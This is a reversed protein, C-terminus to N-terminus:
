KFKHNIKSRHNPKSQRKIKSKLNRKKHQTNEISKRISSKITDYEDYKDFLSDHYALTLNKNRKYKYFPHNDLIFQIQDAYNLENIGVAVKSDMKYLHTGFLRNSQHVAGIIIFKIDNQILHSKDRSTIIDKIKRTDGSRHTVTVYIKWLFRLLIDRMTHKQKIFHLSAHGFDVIYPSPNDGDTNVMINELKLDGHTFEYKQYLDKLTNLLEIHFKQYQRASKFITNGDKDMNNNDEVQKLNYKGAYQQIYYLHHNGDDSYTIGWRYVRPIHEPHINNNQFYCAIMIERILSMAERNHTWFFKDFDSPKVPENITHIKLVAKEKKYDILFTSSGGRGTLTDKIHKLLKNDHKKIHKNIYKVLDTISEYKYIQKCTPM